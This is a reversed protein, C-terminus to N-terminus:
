AIFHGSAGSEGLHTVVGILKFMYPSEKNKVYKSINLLEEFELKVNFEIGKGRNLIMIIIQPATAIYSQYFASEQRKCINCYMSNEGTMTEVKQNFDFCDTMTVSNINQISAFYPQCMVMLNQNMNNMNNMYPFGFQAMQQMQMQMNNMYIQQLNQIKFKRVEELPFIIFFGVQYNFKQTGCKQCKYLTGNIGYFLESIISKNEVESSNKFYNFMSLEDEQSPIFNDEFKTGENLEEHLRMIIFNVLDKSDNAKAGEFLPNMKSIKEKFLKPVFYANNSNKHNFQPDYYEKDSPWINEILYKFSDTLCDERKNKYDEIVKLIRSSMRFNDVLKEIQCLCQLTANMYCTAGVNQLGIRPAVEFQIKIPQSPQKNSNPLAIPKVTNPSNNVEIKKNDIHLTPNEEKNSIVIQNLSQQENEKKFGKNYKYIYGYIKSDIKIFIVAKSGFNLQSFYKSFKYEKLYEFSKRYNDNNDYVFIYKLIFKYTINDLHGVEIIIKNSGTISENKLEIFTFDEIYFCETYYNKSEMNKSYVEKIDYVQDFTSKEILYFNNYFTINEEETLSFGEFDPEENPFKENSLKILNDNFLKNTGPIHKILFYIQKILLYKNEKVALQSSLAEFIKNASQNNEIHQKVKGYYYKEKFKDIWNENILYYQKFTDKKLYNEYNKFYALLYIIKILYNNINYDSFDVQNNSNFANKQMLYGYGKLKKNDDFLPSLCGLLDNQEKVFVFFSEIYKEEKKIIRNEEEEYNNYIDIILKNKFIGEKNLEGVEIINKYKSNNFIYIYKGGILCEFHALQNKFNENIKGITEGDLLYCEDHYYIKDTHNKVIIFNLKDKITELQTSLNSLLEVQNQAEIDM